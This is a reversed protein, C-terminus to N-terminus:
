FHHRLFYVYLTFLGLYGLYLKGKILSLQVRGCMLLARDPLPPILLYFGGNNRIILWWACSKSKHRKKTGLCIKKKKIIKLLYIM